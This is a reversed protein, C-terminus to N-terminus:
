HHIKKIFSSVFKRLASLDSLDLQIFQTSTGLEDEIAKGKTANSGIFTIFYDAKVLAKVISLGVGSTGGTVIARKIKKM